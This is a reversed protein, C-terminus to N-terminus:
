KELASNAQWQQPSNFTSCRRISASSCSRPRAPLAITTCSPYRQGAWLWSTPPTLWCRACAPSPTPRPSGRVTTAASTRIPAAPAPSRGPRCRHRHHRNGAHPRVGAHQASPVPALATHPSGASSGPGPGRPPPACATAALLSLWGPTLCQRPQAGAQQM